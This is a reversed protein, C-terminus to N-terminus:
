SGSELVQSPDVYQSEGKRVIPSKPLGDVTGNEYERPAVYACWGGWHDSRSHKRSMAVQIGSLKGTAGQLGQSNPLQTIM